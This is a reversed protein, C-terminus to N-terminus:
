FNPTPGTFENLYQEHAQRTNEGYAGDMGQPNFGNDFLYQQFALVVGGCDGVNAQPNIEDIDDTFNSCCNSDCGVQQAINGSGEGGIATAPVTPQLPTSTQNQNKLRLWLFRTVYLILLTAMIVVVWKFEKKM